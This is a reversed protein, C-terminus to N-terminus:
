QVEKEPHQHETKPNISESGVEQYQAWNKHTVLIPRLDHIIVLCALTMSKNYM